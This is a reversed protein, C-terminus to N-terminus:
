GDGRLSGAAAATKGAPRRLGGVIAPVVERVRAIEAATTGAGLSFRIAGRQWRPELGMAAIVHSAELNGSCCASGASVAIGALDLAILLSDSDVGAFSVNLVNALRPQNGNVRVDPISAALGDELRDRLGSVRRSSEVRERVALELAAAM